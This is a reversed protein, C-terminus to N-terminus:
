SPTKEDLTSAPTSSSPTAVAAEQNDPEETESVRTARGVGQFVLDLMDGASARELPDKRSMPQLIKFREMECIAQVKAIMERPSNRITDRFNEADFAELLTVLLSWVDSKGSQQFFPFYNAGYDM